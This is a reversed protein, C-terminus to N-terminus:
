HATAGLAIMRDSMKVILIGFFGLAKPRANEAKVNITWLGRVSAVKRYILHPLIPKLRTFYGKVPCFAEVSAEVPLIPKLRVFPKSRAFYAEVFEEVLPPVLNSRASRM